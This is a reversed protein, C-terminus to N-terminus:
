GKQRKKDDKSYKSVFLYDGKTGQQSKKEEPGKVFTVGHECRLSVRDNGLALQVIVSVRGQMVM